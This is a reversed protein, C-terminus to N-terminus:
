RSAARRSPRWTRGSARSSAQAAAKAARSASTRSAFRARRRSCSTRRALHRRPHDRRGAPTRSSSARPPPSCSTARSASRCAARPRAGQAAPAPEPRRRVGHRPVRRRWRARPRPRERHQRAAHRGAAQGRRDPARCLRPRERARPAPAQDRGAEPVRAVRDVHGAFVEAMGGRGLLDGLVYRGQRRQAGRRRSRPPAGRRHSHDRGRLTTTCDLTGPSVSRYMRSM